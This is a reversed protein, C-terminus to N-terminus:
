EPPTGTSAPSPAPLLTHSPLPHSPLPQPPPPAHSPMSLLTVTTEGDLLSQPPPCRAPNDIPFSRPVSYRSFVHAVGAASAVTVIPDNQSTDRSTVKVRPGAMPSLKRCPVMLSRTSTSIPKIWGRSNVAARPVHLVPSLLRRMPGPNTELWPTLRIRPSPYCCPVAQKRLVELAANSTSFCMVPRLSIPCNHFRFCRLDPALASWSDGPRRHSVREILPVRDGSM